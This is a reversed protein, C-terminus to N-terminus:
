VSYRLLLDGQQVLIFNIAIGLIHLISPTTLALPCTAVFYTERAASLNIHGSPQYIGPYINFTIMGIDNEPANLNQGYYSPLYNKYFEVPTPHYM